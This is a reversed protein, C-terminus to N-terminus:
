PGPGADTTGQMSTRPVHLPPPSRVNLGHQKSFRNGHAAAKEIHNLLLYITLCCDMWDEPKQARIAADLRALLRARLPNLEDQIVIQDLQVDMLPTVPVFGAWPSKPHTPAAIGLKNEGGIKWQVDIVRCYAWMDLAMSTM